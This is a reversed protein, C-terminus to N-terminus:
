GLLRAPNEVCAARELGLARVAARTPEADIVPVDSGYVLQAPNCLELAARGYSATDLYIGPGAAAAVDGGRSRLRDVQVPAGGALIAFVVRLEPWRAVGRALWAFYAEQIQATYGVVAAWWAPARHPSSAPGPHVFLFGGRRNLEDAIAALADLDLLADAPVCTGAFGDLVRDTALAALRGGSESVLELAGEHYADLLEPTPELTPPLSVVAVDIEQRDLIGLRVDLEHDRLEIDFSGELALDLRSGRLRPPERRAELARIFPEPWLHQHVDVVRGAPGSV